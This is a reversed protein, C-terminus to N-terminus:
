RGVREEIRALVTMIQGMGDRLERIHTELSDLEKQTSKGLNNVDRELVAIRNSHEGFKYVTALGSLSLTVIVGIFEM